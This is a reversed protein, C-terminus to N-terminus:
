LRFVLCGQGGQGVVRAAMAVTHGGSGRAGQGWSGVELRPESKVSFAADGSWQVVQTEVVRISDVGARWCPVPMRTADM